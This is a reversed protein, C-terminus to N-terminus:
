RCFQLTHWHFWFWGAMNEQNCTHLLTTLSQMQIMLVCIHLWITIIDFLSVHINTNNLTCAHTLWWNFMDLDFHCAKPKKYKNLALIYSKLIKYTVDSQCTKRNKKLKSLHFVTTGTLATAWPVIAKCSKNQQKWITKCM